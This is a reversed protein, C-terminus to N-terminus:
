VATLDCVKVFSALRMAALCVVFINTIMEFIASVVHNQQILTVLVTPMPTPIFMTKFWCDLIMLQFTWHTLNAVIILIALYAVRYNKKFSTAWGNSTLLIGVSFFEQIAIGQLFTAPYGWEKYGPAM